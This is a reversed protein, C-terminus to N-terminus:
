GGVGARDGAVAGAAHKDAPDGGDRASVPRAAAVARQLTLMQDAEAASADAQGYAIADFRDAAWALDARLSPVVVALRGSIEHATLSPADELLAREVGGVAISRLLDLLCEAYRGEARAQLARELYQRATLREVGVAARDHAPPLRRTRRVFRLMYAVLLVLAVSVLGAVVTPLPRTPSHVGSLLDELWRQVAELARTLPDRTDRYAPKSLEAQLWARAERNGPDLRAPAALLQAVSV